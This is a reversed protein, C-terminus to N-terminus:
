AVKKAKGAKKAKKAVAIDVEDAPGNAALITVKEGRHLAALTVQTKGVATVAEVVTNPGLQFTKTEVAKKGAAAGNKGKKAATAITISGTGNKDVSLAVVKGHMHQEKNGKNKGKAEAVTASLM